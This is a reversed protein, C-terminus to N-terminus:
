QIPTQAYGPAEDTGLSTLLCMFVLFKVHILPAM